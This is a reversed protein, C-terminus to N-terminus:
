LAIRLFGKPNNADRGYTFFSEWHQISSPDNAPLIYLHTLYKNRIAIVDKLQCLEDYQQDTCQQIHEEPIWLACDIDSPEEKNTLFSGDIWLELGHLGADILRRYLALFGAWLTHRRNDEPYSKVTLQYFDALDSDHIGPPLKPKHPNTNLSGM